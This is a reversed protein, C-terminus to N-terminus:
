IVEAQVRGLMDNLKHKGDVIGVRLRRGLAFVNEHTSQDQAAFLWNRGNPGVAQVQRSTQKDIMDSRIDGSCKAEIIHLQSNAYISVDLDNKADGPAANIDALHLGLHVEAPTGDLSKRIGHWTWEEFWKAHTLLKAAETNRREFRWKSGENALSFGDLSAVCAAVRGLFMELDKKSQHPRTAIAQSVNGGHKTAIDDFRNLLAVRTDIDSQDDGAFVANAIGNVETERNLATREVASLNDRRGGAPLMSRLGFSRLYADLGIHNHGSRFSQARGEDPWYIRTPQKAVLSFRDGSKSRLENFALWMGISMETTGGTYVGVVDISPPAKALEEILTDRSAWPNDLACDVPVFEPLHALGRRSAEVKWAAHLNKDNGAASQYAPGSPKDPDMGRLCIVKEIREFGTFHACVLNVIQARTSAAVLWVNRQPDPM